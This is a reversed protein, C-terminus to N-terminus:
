NLHHLWRYKSCMRLTSEALNHNNLNCSMYHKIPDPYPLNCYWTHTPDAADIGGPKSVHGKMTPPYSSRIPSSYLHLIQLEAEGVVLPHMLLHPPPPDVHFLQMHLFIFNSSHGRAASCHITLVAISCHVQIRWKIYRIAPFNPPKTSWGALQWFYNFEVLILDNRKCVSLRDRM